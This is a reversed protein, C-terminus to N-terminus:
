QQEGSPARTTCWPRPAGSACLSPPGQQGGRSCRPRREPATPRQPPVPPETRGGQKQVALAVVLPQLVDHAADLTMPGLRGGGRGGLGAGVVAAGRSGAVLGAAAAAAAAAATLLAPGPRWERSEELATEEREREEEKEEVWEEEEEEAV